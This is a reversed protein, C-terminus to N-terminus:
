LVFAGYILLVGNFIGFCVGGILSSRIENKSLGEDAIMGGSFVGIWGTSIGSFVLQRVRILLTRGVLIWFAAGQTLFQNVGTSLSSRL